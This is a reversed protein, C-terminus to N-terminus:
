FRQKKDRFDTKKIKREIGKVCAIIEAPNFPKKIWVTKDGETLDKRSKMDFLGNIMIMPISIHRQDMEKLLQIASFDSLDMDLIVLDIGLNSDKRILLTRLAEKSDSTSIIKHGSNELVFTLTNLIIKEDEVILITM